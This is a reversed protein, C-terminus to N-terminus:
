RAFEATRGWSGEFVMEALPKRRRPSRARERLKEPLEDPDGPYGIALATMPTWGAPIGLSESAAGGDFGGMQHVALGEATAQATLQAVALGLDHAAHRNPKGNRDLHEKAATVVLVPAAPAWSQNGPALTEAVREFSEADAATAVVFGWPQENFSSPAWRAAEFLRGLVEPEVPRDEFALPSYRDRVLRHIDNRESM